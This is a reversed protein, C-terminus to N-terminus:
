NMVEFFQPFSKHVCDIDHLVGGGNMRQFLHSIMVMRHDRETKVEVPNSHPIRGTIIIADQDPEYYSSVEFLNMIRLMEKLRDCEKYKLIEVNRIISRDKAYSALFCLTPVLDPCASCDVDFSPLDSLGKLSLGNSSIDIQVGLDKLIQVFVSDAQYEDIERCNPVTLSGSFSAMALPYSLSSFDVPVSYRNTNKIILEKTMNLYPISTKLNKEIVKIGVKHLSLLFGTAFQTTESCDVEVEKRENKYPGKLTFWSQDDISVGLDRLINKMEDMPRESMKEAPILKYQNKGLALLPILFRNTTGGDGTELVLTEDTTVECAPFSNNIKVQDNTQTVNLGIAKFCKIMNRVDSSEPVNEIVVIDPNLAALILVRNAYSKSTPVLIKKNLKGSNSNFSLNESNM